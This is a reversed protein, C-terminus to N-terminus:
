TLISVIGFISFLCAFIFWGIKAGQRYHMLLAIGVIGLGYWPALIAHKLNAQKKEIKPIADM